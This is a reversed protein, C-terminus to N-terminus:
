DKRKLQSFAAKVQAAILNRKAAIEDAEGSYPAPRALDEALQREGIYEISLRRLTRAEWPLLEIGSITQWAALDQYSIAAEGMGAAVSPGIDFLWDTLYAAPNRPVAPVDGRQRITDM